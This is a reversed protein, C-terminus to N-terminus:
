GLQLRTCRWRGDLGELRAAVAHVRGATRVVAAIEAVGDAPEGVHVSRVVATRAWARQRLVTEHEAALLGHHVAPALHGALQRFPRRGSLAELVATVLARGWVAADPLDARSTPRAGFGTPDAPERRAPPFPLQRDLPGVLHLHRDPIEDDYPPERRPAPHVTVGRLATTM